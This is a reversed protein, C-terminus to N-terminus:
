SVGSSTCPSEGGREVRFNCLVQWILQAMKAQVQMMETEPVTLQDPMVWDLISFRFDLIPYILAGM